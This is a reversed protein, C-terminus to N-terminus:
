APDDEANVPTVILSLLPAHYERIINGTRYFRARGDAVDHFDATFVDVREEVEGGWVLYHVEYKRLPLIVLESIINGEM